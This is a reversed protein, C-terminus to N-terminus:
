DVVYRVPPNEESQYGDLDAISGPDRAIAYVTWGGAALRQATARGIGEIGDDTEMELTIFQRKSGDPPLGIVLPHDGPKDILRARARAIKM